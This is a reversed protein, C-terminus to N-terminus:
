TQETRPRLCRRRPSGVVVPSTSSRARKPQPPKGLEIAKRVISEVKSGREMAAEILHCQKSNTTYPEACLRFLWALCKKIEEDEEDEHKGLHQVLLYQVTRKQNSPSHFDQNLDVELRKKEALMTRLVIEWGKVLYNTDLGFVHRVAHEYLGIEDQHGDHQYTAKREAKNKIITRLIDCNVPDYNWGPPNMAYWFLPRLRGRSRFKNSSLKEQVYLTLKWCIALCIVDGQHFRHGIRQEYFESAWCDHTLSMFDNLHDIYQTQAHGTSEEAFKAYNFFCAIANSATNSKKEEEYDEEDFEDRCDDWSVPDRTAENPIIFSEYEENRHKTWNKRADERLDWTPVYFPHTKLLRLYSAMFSVNIDCEKTWRSKDNTPLREKISQDLRLKLLYKVATRHIFVVKDKRTRDMGWRDKALKRDQVQILGRCHSRIRTEIENLDIRASSSRTPRGESPAEYQSCGKLADLPDCTALAIQLLTLTYNNGPAKLLAKFYRFADYLYKQPIKKIIHGYIADLEPPVEELESQLSTSSLGDEIEVALTSVVLKVWLFVGRANKLITSILRSKIEAQRLAPRIPSLGFSKELEKEVYTRIDSKTWNHMELTHSKALRNSFVPLDGRCAICLKIQFKKSKAPTIWSQLLDLQDKHNGECEDLGDLFLLVNSDLDAKSIIASLTEKLTHESWTSCSIPPFHPERVQKLYFPWIWPLLKPSKGLLQDLFSHLFGSMKNEYEAKQGTLECFFYNCVISPRQPQSPLYDKLREAELVYKMLTSKGAGAVGSIWYANECAELCADWSGLWEVFRNATKTWIWEFTKDYSSDIRDRRPNRAFDRLTGRIEIILQTIFSLASSSLM